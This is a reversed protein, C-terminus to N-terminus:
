HTLAYAFFNIGLQTYFVHAYESIQLGPYYRFVRWNSTAEEVWAPLTDGQCFVWDLRGDERTVSYKPGTVIATPLISNVGLPAERIRFRITTAWNGIASKGWGMSVVPTAVVAIRDKVIMAVTSYSGGPWKENVVFQRVTDPLDSADPLGEYFSRFIPHKRNLPEFEKEPFVEKFAEKLEPMADWDAFSHHQGASASGRLFEANIGADIFVFGGRELYKRLNDAEAPSFLWDPRDAANVYILPFNFIQPDEFSSIITPQTDIKVTTRENISQLLTAVAYPYARRLPQGQILQAIRVDKPGYKRIPTATVGTSEDAAPPVAPGAAADEPTQAPAPLLSLALTLCAIQLTRHPRM